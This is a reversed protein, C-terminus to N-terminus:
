RYLLGQLEELRMTPGGLQTAPAGVEIQKPHRFGTAIGGLPQHPAARHRPDIL